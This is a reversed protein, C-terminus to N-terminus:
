KTWHLVLTRMWWRAPSEAIALDMRHALRMVPNAPDKSVLSSVLGCAVSALGSFFHRRAGFLADARRIQDRSLPLEDRTRSARTLLRLLKGAPNDRLPEIFVAHGGPRLVRRIEGIAADFDLHHLIARGVVADVSADALALRHGDMVGFQARAGHAAKAEVIARESIDIGLIAAPARELLVPISQGTFCGYDLVFAGRAAEDLARQFAEEAAQANPCRFVHSFRTHLRASSAFVGGDNYAAKERASRTPFGTM